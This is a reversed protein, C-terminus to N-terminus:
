CQLVCCRRHCQNTEYVLVENQSYSRLVKRLYDPVELNASNFATKVTSYRNVKNKRRSRKEADDAIVTQIM